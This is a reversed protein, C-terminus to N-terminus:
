RGSTGSRYNVAVAASVPKGLVAAPTTSGTDKGGTESGGRAIFRGQSVLWLSDLRAFGKLQELEVRLMDVREEALKWETDVKALERTIRNSAAHLYLYGLAAGSFIVLLIVAKLSGNARM